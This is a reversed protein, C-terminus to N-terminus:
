KSAKTTYNPKVNPKAVQLQKKKSYKENEKQQELADAVKSNMIKEFKDNAASLEGDSVDNIFDKINEESM